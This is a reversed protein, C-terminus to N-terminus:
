NLRLLTTEIKHLHEKITDIDANRPALFIYRQLDTIADNFHDLRHHILGRDRLNGMEQPRLIVMLNITKLAAPWNQQDLYIHKLNLLLRYLMAKKAVPRLFQRKFLDRRQVPSNSLAVCDDETLIQGRRFVDIYIPDAEAGYGVIFHGPLGIGWLPLRLRWGVELYIISLTLPIGKRGDMVRNLFSNNPNYYDDANGAYNVQGFLYFNLADIIEAAPQNATIQPRITAAMKDLRQLYSPVDFPHTLHEAILLATGALDILGEDKALIATVSQDLGDLM